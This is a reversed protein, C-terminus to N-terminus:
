LHVLTGAIKTRRLAWQFVATSVPLLVLAFLLFARVDPWVDAISAGSLLAARMAELSYTVPIARAVLQLAPPLVSVPYIIGGLLRVRGSTPVLLTALIRLLTSKGAGNLGVLAAAEGRQVAFSVGDLARSAPRALPHLFARWGTLQPPFSKSLNEAIIADSM